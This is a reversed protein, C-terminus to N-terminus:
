VKRLWMAPVSTNAYSPTGFTAPLAAYTFSKYIAGEGTGSDPSGGGIMSQTFSANAASTRLTPTANFVCALFIPGVPIFQSITAELVAPSATDVTGADIVLDTPLGDVMKYIGLRAAGAAGSTVEIGIRTFVTPYRCLFPLGYLRDASAAATSTSGGVNWGETGYYRGSAYGSNLLVPMPTVINGGTVSM